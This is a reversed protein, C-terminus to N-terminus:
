KTLCPVLFALLQGLVVVFAYEPGFKAMKPVFIRIEVPPLLLKPVLRISFWRPVKNADAM